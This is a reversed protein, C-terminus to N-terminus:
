PTYIPTDQMFVASCINSRCFTLGSTPSVGNLPSAVNFTNGTIIFGRTPDTEPEWTIAYTVSSSTYCGQIHLTVMTAGSAGHVLNALQSGNVHSVQLVDLSGAVTIGDGLDGSVTHLSGGNLRLLSGATANITPASGTACEVRTGSLECQAAANDLLMASAGATSLITCDSAKCQGESLRIAISTSTITCQNLRVDADSDARIGYGALTTYLSQSDSLAGQCFAACVSNTKWTCGRAVVSGGSAIDLGVGSTAMVNLSEISATGEVLLVDYASGQVLKDAGFGKILVEADSPVRIANAGLNLPAAIAWSGTTLDHYGGSAAPLDSIDHVVYDWPQSYQLSRALGECFPGIKAAVAKKSVDDITSLIETFIRYSLGSGTAEGEANVIVEGVISM